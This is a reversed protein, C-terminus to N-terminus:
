FVGVEPGTHTSSHRNRSSREAPEATARASTAAHRAATRHRATCHPLQGSIAGADGDSDVATSCSCMPPAFKLSDIVRLFCCFVLGFCLVGDLDSHVLGIAVLMWGDMRRTRRM